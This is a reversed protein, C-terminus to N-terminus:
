NVGISYDVVRVVDSVKGMDLDQEKIYGKIIEAKEKPFLKLFTKESNFQKMKKNVVIYYSNDNAYDFEFIANKDAPAEGRKTEINMRQANSTHSRTGLPGEKGTNIVKNKWAIYLNGGKLQNVELFLNNYPIFKLGTIYVTDILELGQLIMLEGNEYYHMEQSYWDYNLSTNVVTKNKMLVTGRRFDGFLYQQETIDQGKILPYVCTFFAIIFLIKKM